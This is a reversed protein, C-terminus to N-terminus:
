SCLLALIDWALGGLVALFVCLALMLAWWSWPFPDHTM